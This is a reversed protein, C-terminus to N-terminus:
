LMEGVLLGIIIYLGIMIIRLLNEIVYLRDEDM